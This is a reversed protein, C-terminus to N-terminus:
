RGGYGQVQGARGTAREGGGSPARLGLYDPGNSASPDNNVVVRPPEARRAQLYDMNHLEM